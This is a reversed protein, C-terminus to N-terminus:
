YLIATQMDHVSLLIVASFNASMLCHQKGQWYRETVYVKHMPFSTGGHKYIPKYTNGLSNEPLKQIASLNDRATLSKLDKRLKKQNYQNIVKYIICCPRCLKGKQIYQLQTRLTHSPTECSLYQIFHCWESLNESIPRKVNRVM